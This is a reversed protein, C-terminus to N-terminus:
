ERNQRVLAEPLEVFVDDVGSEGIAVDFGDEAAEWELGRAAQRLFDERGAQRRLLVQQAPQERRVPSESIASRRTCERPM